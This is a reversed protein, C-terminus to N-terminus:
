LNFADCILKAAEAPTLDTTDIELDYDIDRHVREFQWRALGLERDGRRRERDEIANLSATLAVLRVDHGQLLRRYAREEGNWFVDDVVLNNGQDAMAAIAHRMGSMARECVPGTLVATSPRGDEHGHLFVIGEPSGILRPPLGDIFQDLAIHLFPASALHQLERAVSSKGVSGVGNLVIVRARQM